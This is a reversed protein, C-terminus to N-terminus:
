IIKHVRGSIDLGFAVFILKKTFIDNELVQILNLGILFNYLIFNEIFKICFMKEHTKGNEIYLM